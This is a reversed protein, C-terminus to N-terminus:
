GQTTEDEARRRDGSDASEGAPRLEGRRRAYEERESYGYGGFVEGGRMYDHGYGRGRPYSGPHQEQEMPKRRLPPHPALTARVGHAALPGAPRTARRRPCAGPRGTQQRTEPRVVKRANHLNAVDGDDGVDVVPLRSEHVLHEALAPGEAVVLDDLVPHHVRVRELALPADRDQGLVGRHAPLVHLDVDDVRGAVGVEAALDLADQAHDVAHQEDDVREVARHRLRAEHQALRERQAARGDDDDVLDVARAGVRQAHV